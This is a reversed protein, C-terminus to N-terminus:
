ELLLLMIYVLENVSKITKNCYNNDVHIYLIYIYVAFTSNDFCWTHMM